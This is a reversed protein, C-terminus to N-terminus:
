KFDLIFLYYVIEDVDKLNKVEGAVNPIEGQELTSIRLIHPSKGLYAALAINLDLLMSDNVIIRSTILQSKVYGGQNLGLGYDLLKKILVINKKQMFPLAWGWIWIKKIPYYIGLFEYRSKLIINKDKDRLIVVSKELDNNTHEYEVYKVKKTFESFTENNKDYYELANSQISSLDSM